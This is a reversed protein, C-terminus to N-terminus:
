LVLETYHGYVSIVFVCAFHELIDFNSMAHVDGFDDTLCIARAFLGKLEHNIDSDDHMSKDIIHGLISLVHLM